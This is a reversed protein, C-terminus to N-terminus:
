IRRILRLIVQVMVEAILAAGASCTFVILVSLPFYNLRMTMQPVHRNLIPYYWADAMWSSLYIGLSLRSIGLLLRKGMHPLGSLNIHLLLIFLLVSSAVNQWGFWDNYTGWEFTQGRLRWIIFLTSGLLVGLLLFINKVRPLRPRYERLYAGAFYYQLPWIGRWWSPLVKFGWINTVTPLTVMAFLTLLWVQKRRKTTLGQYLVNLFPILLFLGLYMEIYWGYDSARYKLLGKVIRKWTVEEKLIVFRFAYCFLGVILYTTLTKVVGRYYQGSLEKHCMLYGTLMLFLPVCVICATRIFVMVYMRKGIIPVHYFEANLFFHVSLVSLTAVTRILDLNLNREGTQITKM